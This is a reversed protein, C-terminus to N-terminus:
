RREGHGVLFHESKDKKKLMTLLVKSLFFIVPPIRKSISVFKGENLPLTQVLLFNFWPLDYVACQTDMEQCLFYSLYCFIALIDYPDM